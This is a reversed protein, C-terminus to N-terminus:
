IRDSRGPKEKFEEHIGRHDEANPMCVKLVLM